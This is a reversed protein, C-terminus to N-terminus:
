LYGEVAALPPKGQGPARHCRRLWLSKLDPVVGRGLGKDGLNKGKVNIRSTVCVPAAFPFNELAGSARVGAHCTGCSRLCDLVM